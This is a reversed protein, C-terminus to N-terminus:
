SSRTSSRAHRHRRPPQLAPPGDLRHHQVQGVRGLAAVLYSQGAGNAKADAELTLVADWQHYRPFIVTEAAKPAATVRTRAARRPHLAGPHGDLRGAGLGAGVPLRHPARRTRRTARGATTASISRCSGTDQGALKTTMAVRDPDVAFHVLARRGLTVNTPDRDKRYQEIAHEITQDTLPEEARRHGDPHRQRVPGPRHDQPLRTTPSSAPSRSGTPTTSPALARTHPRTRAQLLGAPDDRGSRRRRPASRRGHRATWNQPLGSPSGLQAADPDNGYRGLLDSGRRPKPQASSPSCNPPTSGSTPTSTPRTVSKVYGGDTLCHRARHRGRLAERHREHQSEPIDLEGTM